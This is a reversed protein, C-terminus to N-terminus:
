WNLRRRGFSKVNFLLCPKATRVLSTKPLDFLDIEEEQAQAQAHATQLSSVSMM